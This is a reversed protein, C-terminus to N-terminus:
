HDSHRSEFGRGRSGWDLASGPQAVSRAAPLGLLDPTKACPCNLFYKSSSFSHPTFQSLRARILAEAITFEEALANYKACRDARRLLETKLGDLSTM